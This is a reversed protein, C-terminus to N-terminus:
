VLCSRTMYTVDHNGQHPMSVMFLPIKGNEHHIHVVLGGFSSSLDFFFISVQKLDGNHLSSSTKKLNKLYALQCDHMYSSM